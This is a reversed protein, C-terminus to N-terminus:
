FNIKELATPKPELQSIQKNPIKCKKYQFYKTITSWIVTIHFEGTHRYHIEYFHKLFWTSCM